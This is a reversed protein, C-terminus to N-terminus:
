LVESFALQEITFYDTVYQLFETLDDYDEAGEEFKRMDEADIGSNYKISKLWGDYSSMLANIKDKDSEGVRAHREVIQRLGDRFASLWIESESKTLSEYEQLRKSLEAIREELDEDIAGGSM